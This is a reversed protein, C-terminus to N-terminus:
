DTKTLLSCDSFGDAFESRYKKGKFVAIPPIFRGVAKTCALITVFIPTCLSVGRKPWHAKTPKNIMQCGCKDASYTLEPKKIKDLKEMPLTLHLYLQGQAKKLQAGGWSPTNHSHLYLEV